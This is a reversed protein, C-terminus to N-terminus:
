GYIVEEFLGAQVIADAVDADIDGEDEDALHAVVCIKHTEKNTRAVKYKKPDSLMELGRQIVDADIRREGDEGEPIVEAYFSDLDETEGKDKSWRYTEIECWYGIGDELATVFIGHLLKKRKESYTAM